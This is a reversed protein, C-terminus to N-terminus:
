VQFDSGALELLRLMQWEADPNGLDMARGLWYMAGEVDQEGLHGALLALGLNYACRGDGIEAGTQWWLRAADADQEGGEGFLAMRGLHTLADTDPPDTRVAREFWARAGTADATGGEGQLLMFGYNFAGVSLGAEAALRYYFRAEEHNQPVGRGHQLLAGLNNAAGAHGTDALRRFLIAAECLRDGGEGSHLLTFAKQFMQEIDSM